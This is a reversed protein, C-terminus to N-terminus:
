MTSLTLITLAARHFRRRLVDLIQRGEHCERGSSETSSRLEANGDVTVAM